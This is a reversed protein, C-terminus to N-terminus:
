APDAGTVVAKGAEIWALTGGTVNSARRGQAALLECATQSRVGSRCIVLVEDGDPVEHVREALEGLPILVAGPVHGSAYEEPTRVDLLPLGSAQRRETEHVDIQPIDVATVRSRARTLDAPTDVDEFDDAGGVVPWEVVVLHTLAAHVSRVGQAFAQELRPACRTRYAALLPQGRGGVQPVIVDSDPDAALAQVLADLRRPSLWPLDCAVVLALETGAAGLGTVIGGLPGQGPWRDVVTRYGMAALPGAPGGVAVAEHCGVATVADRVRRALPLGGVDLLAKDAGGLRRGAGGALVM